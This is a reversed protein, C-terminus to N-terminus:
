VAIQQKHQFRELNVAFCVIDKKLAHYISSYVSRKKYKNCLRSLFHPAANSLVELYAFGKKNAFLHKNRNTFSKEWRVWEEFIGSMSIKINKKIAYLTNRLLNDSLLIKTCRELETAKKVDSSSMANSKRAWYPATSKYRISLTDAYHHLYTGPLVMFRIIVIKTPRFDCAWDLSRKLSKYTDYPLLDILQLEFPIEKDKLLRVNKKFISKQLTRNIAKLTRPNTSQVGIELLSIRARSFLEIMQEDLLEAKIAVRLKTTKNYKIFFRLIKKAREPNSNFTPDLIFVSRPNKSLVWKMEREVRDLSFYRQKYYDKHEYCYHCRYLCGRMTEIPAEPINKLSVLGSLYPSPISDLDDLLPKSANSVIKNNNWYSIGKISSIKPSNYLISGALRLFIEEGEGRVIFDIAREKKLLEEARPSVEPGGLIINIHSHRKKIMKTIKLIKEVNWVYCSFGLIDPTERLIKRTIARVNEHDSFVKTNIKVNRFNHRMNKEFYAKIYYLALQIVSDGRSSITALLIIKSNM